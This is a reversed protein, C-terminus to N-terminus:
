KDQYPPDAPHLGQLKQMARPVADRSNKWDASANRYDHKDIFWDLDAQVRALNDRMLQPITTYFWERQTNPLENEAKELLDAFHRLCFGKCNEAKSRFESDKVLHFFTTYYRDMNYALKDCLYCSSQKQKAWQLLANVTGEQKKISFLPKKGPTEFRAIEGDLERLMGVYYTQLILANGLANGYDYLKKLHGSCFGLRDTTGRVDPEMYSAGPGVTYRIARQEAQRELYCFPCEDNSSFAENVPITDIQERM